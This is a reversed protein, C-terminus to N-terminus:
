ADDERREMVECVYGTEPDYSEDYQSKKGCHPCTVVEYEHEIEEGCWPCDASLKPFIGEAM